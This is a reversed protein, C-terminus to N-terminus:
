RTMGTAANGVKISPRSSPVGARLRIPATPAASVTPKRLPPTKSASRSSGNYRGTNTNPTLATYAVGTRRNIGAMVEAGDAMQPVWKPSVFSATEIKKLGSRSLADVLAIKDETPIVRAEHQLGDRPAMEFVLIRDSM